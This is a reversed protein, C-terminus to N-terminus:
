DSELSEDDSEEEKSKKTTKKKKSKIFSQQITELLTKIKTKNELIFDIYKKSDPIDEYKLAISGYGSSSKGGITPGQNWVEILRGFCSVEIDSPNVIEFYHYFKTGPIYVEIDVKMQVPDGGEEKEIGSNDIEDKRTFFLHDLFNYHENNCLRRYKEPIRFKNESCCILAHGVKLISPIQQNGVSFGFLHVPPIEKLKTRLDLDISGQSSGMQQLKGGDMFSHFVDIQTFKFDILECLDNMILRRLIGRISNGSIFPLETFEDTDEISQRQRPLLVSAGTKADGSQTIPSIAEIIGENKIKRM